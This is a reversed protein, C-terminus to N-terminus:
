AGSDDKEPRRFSIFKSLIYNLIVIVVSILIKAPLGDVGFLATDFGWSVLAPVAVIELLGTALRGGFFTLAESAVLGARWVRSRFVWLKNTVFAFSVAAVWAIAGALILRTDLNLRGSLLRELWAPLLLGHASEPMVRVYFSYVLLNILTTALGFVAYLVWERYKEFLARLVHPFAPKEEM